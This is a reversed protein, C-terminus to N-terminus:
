TFNGEAIEKLKRRNIVKYTVVSGQRSTRHIKVARVTKLYRFAQRASQISCNEDALPSSRTYIAGRDLLKKAIYQASLEAPSPIKKRKAVFKGGSFSIYNLEVLQLGYSGNHLVKLCAKEMATYLKTGVVSNAEELIRELTDKPIHVM